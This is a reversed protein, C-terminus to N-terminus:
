PRPTGWVCRHAPPCLFADLWGSEPLNPSWDRHLMTPALQAEPKFEASLSVVVVVVVVCWHEMWLSAWGTACCARRRWAACPHTPPHTTPVGVPLPAFSCGQSPLWYQEGEQRVQTHHPHHRQGAQGAEGREVPEPPLRPGPGAPLLPPISPPSTLPSLLLRTFSCNPLWGLRPQAGCTHQHLM